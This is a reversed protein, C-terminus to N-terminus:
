LQCMTAVQDESRLASKMGVAYLYGATELRRSLAQLRAMM